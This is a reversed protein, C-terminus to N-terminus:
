QPKDQKRPDNVPYRIRLDGVPHREDEPVVFVALVLDLHVDPVIVSQSLLATDSSTKVIPRGVESGLLVPEGNQDSFQLQVRGREARMLSYRVTVQFTVQTGKVLPSGPSPTADVFEVSYGPYTARGAGYFVNESHIGCAPFVALCVGLAAWRSWATRDM